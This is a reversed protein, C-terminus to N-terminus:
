RLCVKSDFGCVGWWRLVGKSDFGCVGGRLCVKAILGM